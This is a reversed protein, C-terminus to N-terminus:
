QGYPVVEQFAGKFIMYYGSGNDGEPDNFSQLMMGGTITAIKDGGCLVVAGTNDKKSTLKQNKPCGVIMIRYMEENANPVPLKYFSIGKHVKIAKLEKARANVGLGLLLAGSVLLAQFTMRM